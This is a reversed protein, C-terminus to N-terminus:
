RWSRGIAARVCVASGICYALAASMMFEQVAAVGIWSPDLFTRVFIFIGSLLAFAISIGWLQHLWHPVAATVISWNLAGTYALKEQLAIRCRARVIGLAAMAPCTAALGGCLVAMFLALPVPAAVMLLICGFAAAAALLLCTIYAAQLLSHAFGAPAPLSSTIEAITQANAADGRFDIAGHSGSRWMRIALVTTVIVEGITLLAWHIVDHTMGKQKLAAFVFQPMLAHPFTEATLSEATLVTIAFEVLVFQSFLATLMRWRSSPLRIM